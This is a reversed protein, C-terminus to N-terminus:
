RQVFIGAGNGLFNAFVTFESLDSGIATDAVAADMAFGTLPFIDAISCIAVPPQTSTALMAIMGAVLKNLIETWQQSFWGKDAIAALLSAIACEAFIEVLRVRSLCYVPLREARGPFATGIGNLFQCLDVRDNSGPQLLILRRVMNESVM